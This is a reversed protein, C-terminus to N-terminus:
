KRREYDEVLLALLQLRESEPTDPMPDLAVWPKVAEQLAAQHGGDTAVSLEM